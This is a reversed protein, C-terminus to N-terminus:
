GGGAASIWLFAAVLIVLLVAALIWILRPSTLTEKAVDKAVAAAFEVESPAKAEVEDASAGAERAELVGDLVQLGQRIMSKSTTDILRQGVSAIKGGVQIDGEYKMLTTGDGQDILHVTGVGKFFGPSGEGEARLTCHEPPSEDEVLIKGSFVGAVPGMRLNIKGEYETESLQELAQTGPLMTALVEPDRVVEWVKVCSAKFVHEGEIKM